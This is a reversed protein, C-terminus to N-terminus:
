EARGRGACEPGMGSEISSPVTLARGCRCCRGEHWVELTAGLVGERRGKLADLAWVLAVVCPATRSARSATTLRLGLDRRLVGMYAYDDENSPGRLWSVFFVPDAIGREMDEKKVRVRYTFRAGTRKSLLTFRANGALIFAAVAAWDKL